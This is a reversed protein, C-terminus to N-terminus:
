VLPFACQLVESGLMPRNSSSTAPVKIHNFLRYPVSVSLLKPIATSLLPPSATGLKPHYGGSIAFTWGFGAPGPTICMPAKDPRYNSCHTTTIKTEKSKGFAYRCTNIQDRPKRQVQCDRVDLKESHLDSSWSPISQSANM